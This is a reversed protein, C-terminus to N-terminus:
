LSSINEVRCETIKVQPLDKEHEEEYAEEYDSTAEKYYQLKLVRGTM